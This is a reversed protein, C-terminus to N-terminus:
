QKKNTLLFGSSFEMTKGLGIIGKFPIVDNIKPDKDKHLQNTESKVSYYSFNLSGKDIGTIEQKKISNKRSSLSQIPSVEDSKVPVTSADQHCEKTAGTNNSACTPRSLEYLLNAELSMPESCLNRQQSSLIMAINQGSLLNKYAVNQKSVADYRERLQILSSKLGNLVEMSLPDDTHTGKCKMEIRKTESEEERDLAKMQKKRKTNYRSSRIGITTKPRLNCTPGDLLDSHRLTPQQTIYDLPASLATGIRARQSFSTQPRTNTSVSFNDCGQRRDDFRGRACLRREFSKELGGRVKLSVDLREQLVKGKTKQDKLEMKKMEFKNEMTKIKKKQHVIKFHAWVEQKRKKNLESKLHSLARETKNRYLDFKHNVDQFEREIQDSRAQTEVITSKYIRREDQHQEIIKGLDKIQTRYFSSIKEGLIDERTQSLNCFRERELRYSVRCATLLEDYHSRMHNRMDNEKNYMAEFAWTLHNQSIKLIEGMKEQCLAAIEQESVHMGQKDDWLKM